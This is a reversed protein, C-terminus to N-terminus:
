KDQSHEAEAIFSSCLIPLERHIAAKACFEQVEQECTVVRELSACVSNNRQILAVVCTCHIQQLSATGRTGARVTCYIGQFQEASLIVCRSLHLSEVLARAKV